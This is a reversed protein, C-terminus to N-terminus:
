QNLNYKDNIFETQNRGEFDTNFSNNTLETFLNDFFNGIVEGTLKIADGLANFDIGTSLQVIGM